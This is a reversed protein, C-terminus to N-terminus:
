GIEFRWSLTLPATNAGNGDYTRVTLAIGNGPKFITSSFRPTGGAWSLTVKRAEKSAPSAPHALPFQVDSEAGCCLYLSLLDCFGIAGAWRDLEVPQYPLDREIRGRRAKESEVFEKREPDNGALTTFHRSILVDALPSLSRGHAICADWSPQTEAASLAPFPRPPVEGLRRMQGLDSKSWGFDHETAAQIVEAPLKGFANSALSRALDGAVRSHEYQLIIACPPQARNELAMFVDAAPQVDSQRAPKALPRLIM